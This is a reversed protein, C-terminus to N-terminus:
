AYALNEHKRMSEQLLQVAAFCDNSKAAALAENIYWKQQLRHLVRISQQRLERAKPKVEQEAEQIMARIRRVNNETAAMLFEDAYEEDWEAEGKEVPRVNHGFGWFINGM